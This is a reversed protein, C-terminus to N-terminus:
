YRMHAFPNNSTQVIGVEIMEKVMKEVETKQIFLCRYPRIKFSQAGEKLTLQHDHSRIPPLDSPEKFVDDYDELIPRIIGPMKGNSEVELTTLQGVVLYGQTSLLKMM